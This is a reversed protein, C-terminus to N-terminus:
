AFRVPYSLSLIFLLLMLRLFREMQANRAESEGTAAVINCTAENWFVM